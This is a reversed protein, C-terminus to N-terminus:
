AAQVDQGLRRNASVAVDIMRPRPLRLEAMLRIFEERSRGALRPNTTREVGITSSTKGNYTMRRFFSRRM